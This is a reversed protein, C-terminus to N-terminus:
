CVGTMVVSFLNRNAFLGTFRCMDALRTARTSLGLMQRCRNGTDRTVPQDIHTEAANPEDM